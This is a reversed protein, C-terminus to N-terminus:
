TDIIKTLKDIIREFWSIKADDSEKFINSKDKDDLKSNQSEDSDQGYKNIDVVEEDQHKQM